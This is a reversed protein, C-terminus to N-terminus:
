SAPGKSKFGVADFKPSRKSGPRTPAQHGGISRFGMPVQGLSPIPRGPTPFQGGRRGQAREPRVRRVLTRSPLPTQPLLSVEISLNETPHTSIAHIEESLFIYKLFRPPNQRRTYKRERHRKAHHSGCAAEKGTPRAHLRNKSPARRQRTSRGGTRTIGVIEPQINRGDGKNGYKETQVGPYELCSQWINM